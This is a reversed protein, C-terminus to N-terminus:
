ASSSSSTDSDITDSDGSETTTDDVDEDAEKQQFCDPHLHPWPGFPQYKINRRNVFNQIHVVARVLLHVQTM